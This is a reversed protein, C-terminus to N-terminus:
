KFKDIFNDLETTHGGLATGLPINSPRMIDVILVIREECISRNFAYHRKSDDFILINGLQHHRVQERYPCM